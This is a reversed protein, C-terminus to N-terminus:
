ATVERGGGSLWSALVARDDRDPREIEGLADQEGLDVALRGRSTTSGASTFPRTWTTGSYAPDASANKLRPLSDAVESAPAALLASAPDTAPWPTTAARGVGACSPLAIATM